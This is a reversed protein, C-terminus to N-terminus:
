PNRKESSCPKRKQFCSKSQVATWTRVGVWNRSQLQSTASTKVWNYKTRGSATCAKSDQSALPRGTVGRCIRRTIGVIKDCTPVGDTRALRASFRGPAGFPEMGFRRRTVRDNVFRAVLLFLAFLDCHGSNTRSTRENSKRKRQESGGRPHSPETRVQRFTLPFLLASSM